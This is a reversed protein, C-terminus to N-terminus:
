PAKGAAREINREDCSWFAAQLLVDDQPLFTALYTGGDQRVLLNRLGKAMRQGVM